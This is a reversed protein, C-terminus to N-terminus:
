TITEVKMLYQIGIQFVTLVVPLLGKSLCLHGPAEDKACKASPWRITMAAFVMSRLHGIEPAIDIKPNGSASRPAVVDFAWCIM